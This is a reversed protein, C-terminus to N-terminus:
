LRKVTQLIRPARKKGWFTILSLNHFFVCSSAGDVREEKDDIPAAKERETLPFLM